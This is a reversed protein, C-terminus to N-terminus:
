VRSSKGEEIRTKAAGIFDGKSAFSVNPNSILVMSLGVMDSSIAEKLEIEFQGNKEEVHYAHIHIFDNLDQDHFHSDIAYSHRLHDLFFDQIVLVTNKRWRAIQRAKHLLQVLIKKSADKQNLSFSYNENMAGNLFDNRATWIPGSGGTGCAQVEIGVFDIVDGSQDQATVAFDLNGSSGITLEKVVSYDGEELFRLCDKFIIQNQNFREPCVIWDQVDGQPTTKRMICNGILPNPNAKRIKSCNLGIGTDTYLDGVHQRYPCTVEKFPETPTENILDIWPSVSLDVPGDVNVGFLEIPKNQTM